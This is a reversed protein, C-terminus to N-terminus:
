FLIFTRPHPPSYWDEM